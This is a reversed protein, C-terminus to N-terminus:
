MNEDFNKRIVTDLKNVMDNFYTSRQMTTTDAIEEILLLLNEKHAKMRPTSVKMEDLVEIELLALVVFKHM